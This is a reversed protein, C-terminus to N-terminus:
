FPVNWKQQWKTFSPVPSPSESSLGPWSLPLTSGLHGSLRGTSPLCFHLYILPHSTVANPPQHSWNDEPTDPPPSATTIPRLRLIPPPTLPAFSLHLLISSPSGLFLPFPADGAWFSNRSTARTSSAKPLYAKHQLQALHLQTTPQFFFVGRVWKCTTKCRM